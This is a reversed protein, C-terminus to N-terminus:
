LWGLIISYLEKYLGESKKSNYFFISLPLLGNLAVVINSIRSNKKNGNGNYQLFNYLLSGFGSFVFYGLSDYTLRFSPDANVGKLLEGTQIITESLVIGALGGLTSYAAQGGAYNETSNSISELQNGSGM